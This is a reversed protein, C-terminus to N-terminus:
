PSIFPQETNGLSHNLASLFQEANEKAKDKSPFSDPSHCLPLYNRIPDVLMWDWITEGAGKMLILRLNGTWGDPEKVQWYSILHMAKEREEITKATM